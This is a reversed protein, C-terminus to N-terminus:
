TKRHPELTFVTSNHIEYVNAFRQLWFTQEHNRGAVPLEIRLSKDIADLLTVYPDLWCMLEAVPVPASLSPARGLWASVRRLPDAAVSNHGLQLYFAKSESSERVRLEAGRKDYFRFARKRLNSFRSRTRQWGPTAAKMSTPSHFRPPAFSDSADNCNGTGGQADGALPRV